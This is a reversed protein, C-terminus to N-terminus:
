LMIANKRGHVVRFQHRDSRGNFREVVVDYDGPSLRVSIVYTQLNPSGTYLVWGHSDYIQISRIERADSSLFDVLEGTRAVVDCTMMSSSTVDLLEFNRTIAPDDFGLLIQTAPLDYIAFQGREPDLYEDPFTGLWSDSGARAVSGVRMKPSVPNGAEDTVHGQVMHGRQLVITGVDTVGGASVVVSQVDHIYGDFDVILWVTAPPLNDVRFEGDVGVPTSVYSRLAPNDSIVIGGRPLGNEFVSCDVRGIISGVKNALEDAVFRFAIDDGSVSDIRQTAICKSGFVATAFVPLCRDITATGKTLIGAVVAGDSSPSYSGSESTVTEGTRISERVAEEPSPTSHFVVYLPPKLRALAFRPLPTHLPAGAEDSWLVDVTIPTAVSLELGHAVLEANFDTVTRLVARQDLIVTIEHRGEKVNSAMFHGADDAPCALVGEESAVTVVYNRGMRKNCDVIRGAVTHREPSRDHEDGSAFASDLPQDHQGAPTDMPKAVSSVGFEDSSRNTPSLRWVAIIVAAVCAAVALRIFLRRRSARM